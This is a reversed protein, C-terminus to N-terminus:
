KEYSIKGKHLVNPLMEEVSKITASGFDAMISEPQFTEQELVKGLFLNYDDATM